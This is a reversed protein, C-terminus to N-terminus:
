STHSIVLSYINKGLYTKSEITFGLEELSSAINNLEDGRKIHVTLKEDSGLKELAIKTKVFTIPCKDKTIDIYM